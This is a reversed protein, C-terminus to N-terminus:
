ETIEYDELNRKKIVKLYDSHEKNFAIYDGDRVITPGNWTDVVLENDRNIYHMEEPINNSKMFELILNINDAYDSVVRKIASFEPNKRRITVM